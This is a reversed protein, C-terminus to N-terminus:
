EPTYEPFQRCMKQGRSGALHQHGLEIVYRGGHFIASYKMEEPYYPRGLCAGGKQRAFAVIPSTALQAIDKEPSYIPFM